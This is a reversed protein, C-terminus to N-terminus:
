SNNVPSSKHNYQAFTLVIPFDFWYFFLLLLVTHLFIARIRLVCPSLSLATLIFPLGSVFFCRVSSKLHVIYASIYLYECVRVSHLYTCLVSPFRYICCYFSRTYQVITCVHVDGDNGSWELFFGFFRFIQSKSVM